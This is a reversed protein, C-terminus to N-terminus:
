VHEAKKKKGEATQGARRKAEDAAVGDEQEFRRARSSCPKLPQAAAAAEEEAETRRVTVDEGRAIGSPKM